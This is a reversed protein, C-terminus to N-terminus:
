RPPKGFVKFIEFIQGVECDSKFLTLGSIMEALVCGFAWMDVAFNYNEYGLLLEPARYWLSSVELSYKDKNMFIIKSQGFDCLKVIGESSIMLNQPKIDRHM